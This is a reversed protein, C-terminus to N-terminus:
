EKAAEILGILKETKVNVPFEIGLAAAEAKLATRDETKEEAKVVKSPCDVYGKPVDDLSVFLEGGDKNYMWLM